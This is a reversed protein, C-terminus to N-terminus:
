RRAPRRRMVLLTGIGAAVLGGVALPVVAASLGTAPLSAAASGSRPPNADCVPTAPPYSLPVALTPNVVITATIAGRTWGFNGETEVWAGNEFAWGPWGTPNGAADVSAGPWLVRGSLQGNVLTGLALTASNEGDSIELTAQDTPIEDNPDLLTIDYAIWPVDGDCAGVATSGALSPTAPNTPTYDDPEAHAAAPAGLAVIAGLTLAVFFSRKM